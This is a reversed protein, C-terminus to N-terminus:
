RAAVTAAARARVLVTIEPAYEFAAGSSADVVGGAAGGYLTGVTGGIVASLLYAAGAVPFVLPSLLGALVGVGAGTAAGQGVSRGLSSESEIRAQEAMEWQPSECKIFLPDASRKLEVSGPAVLSWHGQSNALVCDVGEVSEGQATRLKLALQQRTGTSVTACGGLTVALAVGLLIGARGPRCRNKAM